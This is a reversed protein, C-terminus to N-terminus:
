RAGLRAAAGGGRATRLFRVRRAHGRHQLAALVAGLRHEAAVGAALPATWPLADNARWQKVAATRVACALTIGLQKHYTVERPLAHWGDGSAGPVREVPVACPVGGLNM